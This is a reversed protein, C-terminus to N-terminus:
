EHRAGSVCDRPLQHLEAGPQVRQRLEDDLGLLEVLAPTVRDAVQARHHRGGRHAPVDGPSRDIRPEACGGELQEVCAHVARADGFAICALKPMWDLIMGGVQDDAVRRLSHGTIGEIELRRLLSTAWEPDNALGWHVDDQLAECCTSILFRRDDWVELLDISEVEGCYVCM